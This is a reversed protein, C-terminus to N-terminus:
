TKRRRKSNGGRQQRGDSEDSAGPISEVAIRSLIKTFYASPNEFNSDNEHQRTRSEVYETLAQEVSAMANRKCLAVAGEDLEGEEMQGDKIFEQIMQDVTNSIYEKHEERYKMLKEAQNKNGRGGCTREVNIRRGDLYTQHLKFCEYLLDPADVEIFAMGRSKGTDKHTLLRVKLRNKDKDKVLGLGSCFYELLGESTTTYSLQGVFVIYPVPKVNIGKSITNVEADDAKRKNTKEGEDIHTPILALLDTVTIPNEVDGDDEMAEEIAIAEAKRKAARREKANMGSSNEELEKLAAQLKMAAAVKKDVVKEVKREIDEGKVPQEYIYEDGRAKARAQMRRIQSASKKGM